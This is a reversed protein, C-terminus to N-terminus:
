SLGRYLPAGAATGCPAGGAAAAAACHLRVDGVAGAIPSFRNARFVMVSDFNSVRDVLSESTARRTFATSRKM